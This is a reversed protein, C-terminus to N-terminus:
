FSYGLGFLLTNGLTKSATLFTVDLHIGAYQLGLGLSAYTPLAKAADGYHFGGRLSVIDAFTYEVGLGAMLAGSFLYDVEASATLGAISYAGGARALMPQAYSAGGYSISSGLNCVALAGSFGGAAYMASVDAGFATGKMNEGIASSVMRASVGLSFGDTVAYSLGLGAVLDSPTFQGTIQGGATTIDYPKDRLMRGSLGLALKDSVKYFAGLGILSNSATKPAWMGYTASVAFTKDSLSMAAAGNDVAFAGAPRAVSAGGTALAAPDAGILLSPLAQASAALAFTTAFLISIIKKM